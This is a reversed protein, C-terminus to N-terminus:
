SKHGVRRPSKVGGGFTRVSVPYWWWHEGVPKSVYTATAANARVGVRLVARYEHIEGPHHRGSGSLLHSDIQIAFEVGPAGAAFGVALLAGNRAAIPTDAADTLALMREIQHERLAKVQRPAVGMQRALARFADAVEVALPREVRGGRSQPRQVTVVGAEWDVVVRAPVDDLLVVSLTPAHQVNM